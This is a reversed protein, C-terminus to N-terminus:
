RSNRRNGFRTPVQFGHQPLHRFLRAFGKQEGLHMAMAAGPDYHPLRRAFFRQGTSLGQSIQGQQQNGAGNAHNPLMGRELVPVTIVTGQDACLKNALRRSVVCEIADAGM